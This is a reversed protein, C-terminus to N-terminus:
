RAPQFCLQDVAVGSSKLVCIYRLDVDLGPNGRAFLKSQIADVAPDYVLTQVLLGLRIMIAVIGDCNPPCGPAMGPWAPTM